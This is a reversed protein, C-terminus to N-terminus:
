LGNAEAASLGNCKPGRENDLVIQVLERKAEDM